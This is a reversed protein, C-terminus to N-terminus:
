VPDPAQPPAPTACGNGYKKSCMARKELSWIAVGGIQWENPPAPAGPPCGRGAHTCCWAKKGDGLGTSTSSVLLVAIGSMGLCDNCRWGYHSSAGGGPFPACVTFM